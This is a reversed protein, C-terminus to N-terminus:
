FIMVLSTLSNVNKTMASAGVGRPHSAPQNRNGFVCAAKKMLAVKLKGDWIDLAGQASLSLRATLSVFLGEDRQARGLATLIRSGIFKSSLLSSIWRPHFYNACKL